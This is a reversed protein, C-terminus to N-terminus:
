DKVILKKLDYDIIGISSYSQCISEMETNKNKENGFLKINYVNTRPFMLKLNYLASSCFGYVAKPIFGNNMVYLEICDEPRVYTISLIDCIDRIECYEERGHAIYQVEVDINSSIDTLISNLVKLYTEKSYGFYECHARSNTGVFLLVNKGHAVNDIQLNLSNHKVKFSQRSPTYISFYELSIFRLILLIKVLCWYLRNKFPVNMTGAFYSLMINGDDVIIMKKFKNGYSLGMFMTNTDRVDGIILYDYGACHPLLVKSLLGIIGFRELQLRHQVEFSLGYKIAIARMQDLRDTELLILRYETISYERIASIACLLQFPSGIILLSSNM